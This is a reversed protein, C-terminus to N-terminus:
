KTLVVIGEQAGEFWSHTLMVESYLALVLVDAPLLMLRGAWRGLEEVAWLLSPVGLM